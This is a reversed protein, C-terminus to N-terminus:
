TNVHSIQVMSHLVHRSSSVAPVCCSDRVVLESGGAPALDFSSTPNSEMRSRYDYNHACRAFAADIYVDRTLSRGSQTGGHGVHAQAPSLQYNRADEWTQSNAPVYKSVLCILNPDETNSRPHRLEHLEDSVDSGVRASRPRRCTLCSCGFQTKAPPHRSAPRGAAARRRLIM